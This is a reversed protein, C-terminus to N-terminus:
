GSALEQLVHECLLFCVLGRDALCLAFELASVTPCRSAVAGMCSERSALDWSWKWRNGENRERADIHRDANVERGCPALWYVATQRTTLRILTLLHQFEPGVTKEKSKSKQTGPEAWSLGLVVIMHRAAPMRRSVWIWLKAGGKPSNTALEQVAKRAHDRDEAWISIKIETEVGWAVPRTWWLLIGNEVSCWCSGHDQSTQQLALGTEKGYFFVHLHRNM